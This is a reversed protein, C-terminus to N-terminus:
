SRRRRARFRFGGRAPEWTWEGSMVDPHVFEFVAPTDRRAKKSADEAAIVFRVGHREVFVPTGGEAEDLLEGLRSRAEAVKYAKM